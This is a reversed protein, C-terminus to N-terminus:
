LVKLHNSQPAMAFLVKAPSKSRERDWCQRSLDLEDDDDDRDTKINM